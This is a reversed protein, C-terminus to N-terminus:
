IQMWPHGLIEDISIRNQTDEFLMRQLLDVADGSLNIRETDFYEALRERRCISRFYSNYINSETWPPCYNILMIFLSIGLAWVDAKGWNFMPNSNTINFEPATYLTTGYGRRDNVIESVNNEVILAQGFDIIFANGDNNTVFNEPKLDRHFIGLDHLYKVGNVIQRFITKCKLENMRFSELSEFIDGNNQLSSVIFYYKENENLLNTQMRNSLVYEPLIVNNNFADRISSRAEVHKKINIENDPNEQDGNRNDYKHVYICKVALSFDNETEPRAKYFHGFITSVTRKGSLCIASRNKNNENYAITGGEERYKESLVIDQPSLIAPTAQAEM